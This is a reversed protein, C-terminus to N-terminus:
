SGRSLSQTSYHLKTSSPSTVRWQTNYTVNRLSIPQSTRFLPARIVVPIPEVLMFQVAGEVNYGLHYAPQLPYSDALSLIKSSFLLGNHFSCLCSLRAVLSGPHFTPLIPVAQPTHARLMGKAFEELCIVCEVGILASEAPLKYVLYKAAQPTTGPGGDLCNKVHSEQESAPGLDALSSNCVPCRSLTDIQSM